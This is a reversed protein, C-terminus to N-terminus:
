RKFMEQSAKAPDAFMAAIDPDSAVLAPVVEITKAVQAELDKASFRGSASPVRAVVVGSFGMFSTTSGYKTNEIVVPQLSVVYAKRDKNYSVSVIVASGPSGEEGETYTTPETVTYTIKRTRGKMDAYPSFPTTVVPAPLTVTM